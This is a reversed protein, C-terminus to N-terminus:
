GSGGMFGAGALAAMVQSRVAPPMVHRERASQLAALFREGFEAHPLCESCTDLHNRVERMRDDTLEGDLLDWLQRVATQCDIERIADSM